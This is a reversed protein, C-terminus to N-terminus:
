IRHARCTSQFASSLRFKVGSPRATAVHRNTTLQTNLSSGGDGLPTNGFHFPARTDWGCCGPNGFSRVFNWPNQPQRVHQPQSLRAGGAGFHNPCCAGLSHLIPLQFKPPSQALHGTPCRMHSTPNYGYRLGPGARLTTWYFLRYHAQLETASNPSKSAMLFKQSGVLGSPPETGKPDVM